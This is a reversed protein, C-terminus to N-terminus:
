PVVVLNKLLIEMNRLLVFVTSFYHNTSISVQEENKVKVVGSINAHLYGLREFTGNGGITNENIACLRQGPVCIYKNSM